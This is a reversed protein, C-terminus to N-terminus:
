GGGGGGGAGLPVAQQVAAHLLQRPPGLLLPAVVQDHGVRWVDGRVLQAGQLWLHGGERGEKREEKRIIIHEDVSM